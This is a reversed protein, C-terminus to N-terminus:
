NQKALRESLAIIISLISGDCTETQKKEEQLPGSPFSCFDPNRNCHNILICGECVAPYSLPMHITKVGAKELSELDGVYLQGDLISLGFRAGEGLSVSVAQIVSKVKHIM